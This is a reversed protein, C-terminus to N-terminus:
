PVSGVVPAAAFSSIPRSELNERRNNLRNGDLHVVGHGPACSLVLRHFPVWRGELNMCYYGEVVATLPRRGAHAECLGPGALFRDCGTVGCYYVDFRPWRGEWSPLDVALAAASESADLARSENFWARVVFHVLTKVSVGAKM